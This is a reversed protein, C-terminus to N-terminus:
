RMLFVYISEGSEIASVLGYKKKNYSYEADRDKSHAYYYADIPSTKRIKGIIVSHHIGSDKNKPCPVTRHGILNKNFIM